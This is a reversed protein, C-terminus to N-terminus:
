TDRRNAEVLYSCIAGSVGVILEAETASLASDERGHRAENSAYGWLKKLATDLPPKLNLSDVMQGLTADKQRTVDRATSELAAMAHRAAGTVNPEPRRSIAKVAEDMERAAQSRDTDLLAERATKTTHMFSEPGRYQIEGNEMQWGIGEERFFRNLRNSFAEALDSNAPLDAYIAEAIDYVRSWECSELHWFVEERVNPIESWINPDPRTLLVECVLERLGSYTMGAQRALQVVAERLETPADERISIDRESGQPGHRESFQQRM